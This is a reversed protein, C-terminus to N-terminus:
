APPAKKPKVVLRYGNPTKVVGRRVCAAVKGGLKELQKLYTLNTEWRPPPTEQHLAKDLIKAAATGPKILDRLALLESVRIDVDIKPELRVSEYEPCDLVSAGDAQMREVIVREIAAAHEIAATAESRLQQAFVVAVELPAEAAWEVVNQAYGPREDNPAKTSANM